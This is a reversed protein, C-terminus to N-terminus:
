IIWIQERCRRRCCHRRPRGGKNGGLNVVVSGSKGFNPDMAGGKLHTVAVQSNGGIDDNLSRAVGSKLLLTGDKQPEIQDVSAFGMSASKSRHRRRLSRTRIEKQTLKSRGISSEEADRGRLINGKGDVALSTLADDNGPSLPHSIFIGRHDGLIRCHYRGMRKSCGWQWIGRGSTEGRGRDARQALQVAAAVFDGARM